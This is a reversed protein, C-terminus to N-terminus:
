KISSFGRDRKHIKRRPANEKEGSRRIGPKRKTVSRALISIQKERNIKHKETGDKREKRLKREPDVLSM